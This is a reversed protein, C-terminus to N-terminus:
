GRNRGPAAIRLMSMKRHRLPCSQTRRQSSSLKSAHHADAVALDAASLPAVQEQKRRQATDPDELRHRKQARIPSGLKALQALYVDAVGAFNFLGYVVLQAHSLSIGLTIRMAKSCM